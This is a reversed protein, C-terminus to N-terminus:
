KLKNISFHLFIKFLITRKVTKGGFIRKSIGFSKLISKKSQIQENLTKITREVYPVLGRQLFESILTKIRDHDSLALCMGHPKVVNGSVVSGIGEFNKGNLPNEITVTELVGDSDDLDESTYGGLSTNSNSFL